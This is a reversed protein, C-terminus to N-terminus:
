PPVVSSGVSMASKFGGGENDRNITPLEAADPKARLTRNALKNHGQAQYAAIGSMSATVSMATTASAVQGVNRSPKTVTTSYNANPRAKQMYFRHKLSM